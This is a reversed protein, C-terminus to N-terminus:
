KTKPNIHLFMFQCPLIFGPITLMAMAKGLIQDLLIPGYISKSLSKAMALIDENWNAHTMLKQARVEIMHDNKYNESM